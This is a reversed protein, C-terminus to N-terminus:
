ILNKQRAVTVAQLRSQVHLKAFINRLHFRVTSESVDIKRAIVKNSYGHVLQQLVESERHSLLPEAKDSGSREAFQQLIIKASDAHPVENKGEKSLAFYSEFITTLEDAEDLFSRIFGSISFL